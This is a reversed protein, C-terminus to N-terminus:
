AEYMEEIVDHYRSHIGRRKLKMTPTLVESDPQWEEALIRFRKVQEQRNFDRNAEDVLRAIAEVVQENHALEEVSGVEIGLEQKAWGPAVDPDLVLLAVLYPRQDGIVAAQGVPDLSKLAKEVNAPSINKGGATIILEKKRDIIRLYGDDDIEGIDGTHLWREEDLADATKEPEKYYGQFINGGWGLVEGDDALRVHTGPWARGVTGVKVEYPDWTLPGCTESLGYIESMPVGIALFFWLVEATIPAAGSFAIECQDLGILSRVLALGDEATAHAQELDESIGQGSLRADHYKRGVDLAQDLQEKKEPDAGVAALVGAHLKEWVRPVAFFVHPRVEALYQGVLGADPCASVETGYYVGNYHSVMREAIHAMPLYSILRKGELTERALYRFGEATWMVNAHTLMVGKPPGTTGSTYILTVLDDPECIEAASDLDVPDRAVLDDWRVVGDPLDGGPDDVVVLYRLDPLEDRVELFRDLFSADEVIAVRAEAHSVLYQVQEASSSNYISFPTAGNLLVAMDSPHFEPVNRMMLAATGGRELGLEALGAALRCARDAYDNWTWESWGGDDERWRLAVEGGRAAVTDRFAKTVTGGAVTRDIEEASIPSTSETAM